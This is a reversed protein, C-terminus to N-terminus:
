TGAGYLVVALCLFFGQISLAEEYFGPRKLKFDIKACRVIKILRM